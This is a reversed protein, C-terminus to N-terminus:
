ARWRRSAQQFPQWQRQSRLHRFPRSNKGNKRSEARVYSMWKQDGLAGLRETRVAGANNDGLDVGDVGELGRHGTELDGSHLLGSGLTVDEDGGGAATIDDTALVEGGHGLVGDDALSDFHESTALVAPTRVTRGKTANTVKIDLNVDCPELLGSDLVRVDLGLNVAVGHRGTTV